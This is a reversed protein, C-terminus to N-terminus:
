HAPAGPDASLEAEVERADAATVGMRDAVVDRILAAFTLADANGLNEGHIRALLLM